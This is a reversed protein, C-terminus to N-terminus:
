GSAAGPFFAWEAVEELPIPTPATSQMWTWLNEMVAENSFGDMLEISASRCSAACLGCAMCRNADVSAFTYTQGAIEKDVLSVAEYPCVETCLGCAVCTHENVVATDLPSAYGADIALEKVALMVDSVQIKQPCMPACMDCASCLWTTRDEFAEGELGNIVKQILRRPNYTEEGTLQIM